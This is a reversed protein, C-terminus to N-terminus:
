SKLYEKYRLAENKHCNIKCYVGEAEYQTSKVTCHENFYSIIDGRTYPVIFEYDQYESFLMREMLELLETIGKRYKASMYISSDRVMPLVDIKLDAKNYCYIMPIDSVGLEQLTNNTVEIQEKYHPDSFDVVQLLLDAERVEELTSRFAKILEHPLDSVFGVTDSLLFAKNSEPTIKRVKTDLTAFLMDKELVKKSDDKVYLDILTNMITSKGANTYGVLAIKPIGSAIRLKRQTKRDKEIQKLERELEHIRATIHRRDLEIKKEGSGKNSFGSGGGQRGLATRMGVLRPMLYQLRAVEVQMKAERTKARKTFIELILTTKDFIPIELERSLKRLQTPTLTANFIIIDAEMQEAFEKIEKVKGTGVYLGKHIHPLKQTIKGCVEMECAEVLNALEDMMNDFDQELGLDVGVILAKEKYGEMEVREYIM